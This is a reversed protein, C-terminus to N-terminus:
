LVPSDIRHNLTRIGEPETTHPQERHHAANRMQGSGLVKCGDRNEPGRGGTTRRHGGANQSNCGTQHTNPAADDTGTARMAEAETDSPSTPLTPVAARLDAIRTRTYHKITTRPDAHRALEKVTAVSAGSAVVAGVYWGRFSHFDAFRGQSDVYRCFDAEERAKREAPTKAEAIWAARAADLDDRLMEATEHPLPFLPRGPKRDEIWTALEEALAPDIPQVDQRRHKSYGAQVTVTPADPNLDFSQPTLSCLEGRRFGTGAAMRYAWARTPGDLTFRVPGAETANLLRTVEEPTLDRRVRRPDTDANWGKVHKLVDVRARGDAVLWGTFTKCSRLIANCTRLSLGRQRETRIAEPDPNQLGAIAGRIAEPQLDAIKEAGVAEVIRRVHGVTLDVHAATCGKATLMAEFDGLHEGLLRAAEAVLRDDRHDRRGERRDRAESEWASAWRTATAKPAAGCSKQVWMGREDRYKAIWTGKRQFVSAM